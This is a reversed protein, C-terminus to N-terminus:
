CLVVPHHEEGFIFTKFWPVHQIPIVSVQDKILIDISHCGSQM